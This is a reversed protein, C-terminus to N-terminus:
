RDGYQLQQRQRHQQGQRQSPPGSSFLSQLEELEESQGGGGWAIRPHPHRSHVYEYEDDWPGSGGRTVLAGRAVPGRGPDHPRMPPPIYERNGQSESLPVVGQDAWPNGGRIWDVIRAEKREQSFHPLSARCCLPVAVFLCVSLSLM